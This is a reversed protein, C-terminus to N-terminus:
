EYATAKNIGRGANYAAIAALATREEGTAVCVFLFPVNKVNFGLRLATEHIELARETDGAYLM